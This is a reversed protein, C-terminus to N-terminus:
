HHHNCRRGRQCSKDTNLNALAQDVEATTLKGRTQGKSYSAKISKLGKELGNENVDFLATRMGCVAAQGAIGAGMTGAGIVTIQEKSM